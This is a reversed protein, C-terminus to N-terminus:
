LETASLMYKVDEITLKSLDNDADDKNDIIEKAVKYKKEQLILMKEEITGKAILKFSSVVNKQGIRHLRDTAQEEKAKNWWPDLHIVTDSGVLNLGTGGAGRSILYIRIPHDVDVNDSAIAFRKEKSTAGDLYHYSVEKKDLLDAVFKLAKVYESYVVIKHDQSMVELMMLLHDVKANEGEYNELYLSPTICIQRLRTILEIVKLKQKNFLNSDSAIPAIEEKVKELETLYVKKQNLSLDILINEEIKDPLDNLVDKKKRRLVFPSILDVLEQKNEQYIEETSFYKRKFAIQSSFFGPMIFDFISYLEMLSNEIPTGTVAFKVRGDLEKILQSTQTNVNKISQAEDIIISDFIFQKYQEYDERVMGYTTIAVLDLPLEKLTEKRSTKNGVIVMTNITPAFRKFEAEWNYVLSAPSVVLIRIGKFNDLRHKIYMIIQLTKGLGMEDALIGGFQYNAINILWKVGVKQYDRLTTSVPEPISVEKDKYANFNAVFEDFINDTTISSDNDKESAIYLARFKPVRIKPKSLNATTLGLGEFLKEFKTIVAVNDVLPVYSGSKLKYYKRKEKLSTMMKKIDTLDIDNTDFEVNMFSGEMSYSSTVTVTKVLNINKIKDSIFLEYDTITYLTNAIFDIIADVSSIIYTDATTESVEFGHDLLFNVVGYEKPMNRIVNSNTQSLALEIDDYLAKPQAILIEDDKKYDLYIRLSPDIIKYQAKLRTPVLDKNIQSSLAPLVTSLYSLDDKKDIRIPMRGFMDFQQLISALDAEIHYVKGDYYIYTYTPELVKYDFNEISLYFYDEQEKIAFPFDYTTEIKDISEHKNQNPISISFPVNYSELLPLSIKKLEENNYEGYLPLRAIIELFLMKDADKFVFTAPNYVIKGFTYKDNQSYARRFERLNRTMLYSRGPPDISFSISEEFTSDKASLSFNFLLSMKRMPETTTGAALDSSPRVLKEKIQGLSPLIDKFIKDLDFNKLLFLASHVLEKNNFAFRFLSIMDKDYVQGMTIGQPVDMELEMGKDTLIINFFINAIFMLDNQDYNSKWARYIYCYIATRVTNKQELGVRLEASIRYNKYLVSINKKVNFAQSYYELARDIENSKFKPM